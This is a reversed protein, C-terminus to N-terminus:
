KRLAPSQFTGFDLDIYVRWRRNFIGFVATKGYAGGGRRGRVRRTGFFGEEAEVEGSLPSQEECM